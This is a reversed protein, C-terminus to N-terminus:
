IFCLVASSNKTEKTITAGLIHSFMLFCANNDHTIITLIQSPIQSLKNVEPLLKSDKNATQKTLFTKMRMPKFKVQRLEFGHKYLSKHLYFVACKNLTKKKTFINIIDAIKWTNVLLKVCITETKILLSCEKPVDIIWPNSKKEYEPRKM